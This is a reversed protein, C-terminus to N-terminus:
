TASRRKPSRLSRCILVTIMTRANSVSTASIHGRVKGIRVEQDRYLNGIRFMFTLFCIGKPGFSQLPSKCIRADFWIKSSIESRYGACVDLYTGRPKTMSSEFLVIRRQSSPM